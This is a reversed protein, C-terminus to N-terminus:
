DTVSSPLLVQLAKPLIKFRLPTEFELVEGDIAVKLHKKALDINIYSATLVELETIQKLKWRFFAQLGIRLLTFRSIKHAYYLGLCEDNFCERHFIKDVHTEFKNNGVVLFPTQLACKLNESDLTLRLNPSHWVSSILALSIALRKSLGWKKQYVRRTEIAFPHLGISAKNLFIRDNLQGLDIWQPKAKSLARVAETLESPMNIDTAFFNFTGMPLVGLVVQKHVLISAASSLSGDGGGVIITKMGKDVLQLLTEHLHEPHTFYVTVPWGVATFQDRIQRENWIATGAKQNIVVATDM